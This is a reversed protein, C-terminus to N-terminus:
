YVLRKLLGEKRRWKPDVKVRLDLHIRYPFLEAIEKQAGIRISKIKNGGKGVLIGKQSEREVLVFARIWLLPLDAEPDRVEMDAIDVYISHPVEQGTANIAKERILESIRFEPPQDTYIDNPYVPDGEPALAILARIIEETGEGKTACTQVQEADPLIERVWASTTELEADKALDSKNIAVLTPVHVAHRAIAQALAREEEGIRRSADVVYLVIEVDRIAEEILGRMHQNFKKQSEHFGPTDVFVIQGEPRNVIGRVRNRTTQPVNSIISVKHGCLTNM